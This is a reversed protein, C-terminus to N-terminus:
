VVATNNMVGLKASTHSYIKGNYRPLIVTPGISHKVYVSYTCKLFDSQRFTITAQQTKFCVHYSHLIPPLINNLSLMVVFTDRKLLCM